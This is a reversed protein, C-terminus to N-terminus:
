CKPPALPRANELRDRMLKESHFMAPAQSAPTTVRWVRLKVEFRVNLWADQPSYRCSVIGETKRCRIPFRRSRTTGLHYRLECSQPFLPFRGRDNIFFFIGAGPPGPRSGAPSEERARVLSLHPQRKQCACHM